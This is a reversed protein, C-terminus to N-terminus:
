GSRETPLLYNNVIFRLTHLWSKDTNGRMDASKVFVVKKSKVDAVYINLNIILNSVKQIKMWAVQDVGLKTGFDLECGACSGLRQAKEVEEQIEASVSVVEYRGSDQLMSKLKSTMLELRSIEDLRTPEYEAHDNLFEIHLVSIKTPASDAAAPSLAATALVLAGSILAVCRVLPSLSSKVNSM